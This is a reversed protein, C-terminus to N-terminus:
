AGKLLGYHEIERFKTILEQKSDCNSKLKINEIYSEVTRKSLKLIEAIQLATYGRLVLRICDNERSTLRIESEAQILGLQKLFAIRSKQKRELATVPKTYFLPGLATDVRRQDNLVTDFIGQAEQKFYDIFNNLLPIDEIFGSAHRPTAFSFGQCGNEVKELFILKYHINYKESQRRLTDQYPDNDMESVLQISTQFYQPHRLFPNVLHFDNYFYYEFSNIDSGFSTACGDNSIHHYLFANFGLHNFLPACLRNIKRNFKRTYNVEIDKMYKFKVVVLHSVM